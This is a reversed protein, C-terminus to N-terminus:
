GNLFESSIIIALIVVLVVAYIALWKGSESRERAERVLDEDDDKM